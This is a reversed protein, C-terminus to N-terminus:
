YITPQYSSADRCKQRAEALQLCELLIINIFNQKEQETESDEIALPMLPLAGGCFSVGEKDKFKSKCEDKKTGPRCNLIIFLLLLTLRVIKM